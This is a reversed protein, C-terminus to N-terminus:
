RDAPTRDAPGTADADREARGKRVEADDGLLKGITERAAGKAARTKRDAPIKGTM